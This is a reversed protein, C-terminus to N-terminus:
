SCGALALGLWGLWAWGLRLAASLGHGGRRGSLPDPASAGPPCWPGYSGPFGPSGLLSPIFGDRYFFRPKGLFQPFDLLWLNLTSKLRPILPPLM